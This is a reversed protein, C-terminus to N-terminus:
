FKEATNINIPFTIFYQINNGNIAMKMFQTDRYM